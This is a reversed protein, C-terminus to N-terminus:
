EGVRLGEKDKKKRRKSTEGNSNRGRRGETGRGTTEKSGKRGQSM